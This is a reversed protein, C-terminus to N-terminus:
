PFGVKVYAVLMAPNAYGGFSRLVRQVTDLEILAVDFFVIEAVRVLHQPRKAVQSGAQRANSRPVPFAVPLHILTEGLSGQARGAWVRSGDPELVVMQSERWRYNACLIWAGGERMEPMDGKRRGFDEADRRARRQDQLTQHGVVQDTKM